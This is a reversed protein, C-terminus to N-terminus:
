AVKLAARHIGESNRFLWLGGAVFVIGTLIMTGRTFLNKSASDIKDTIDKYTQAQLQASQQVTSAAGQVAKATAATDQAMTKSQNDIAQPITESQPNSSNGEASSFDQSSTQGEQNISAYSTDTPSVNATSAIGPDLPATISTDTPSYVTPTEGAYSAVDPSFINSNSGDLGYGAADPATISPDLGFGTPSIGSFSSPVANAIGDQTPTTSTDIGLAGPSMGTEQQIIGSRLAAMQDPNSTDLPSNIGIGSAASVGAGWGTDQAYVPNLTAITNLGKVNIYNNLRQTFAAYGTQMDPFSAYGPQGRIGVISGGGTWGQIPLSVNGPNNFRIAAITM